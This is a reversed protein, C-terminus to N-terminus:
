HCLEKVRETKMVGGSEERGQDDCAKLAKWMLDLDMAVEGQMLYNEKTSQVKEFIEVAKQRDNEAKLARMFLFRQKSSQTKASIEIMQLEKKDLLSAAEDAKGQSLLLGALETKAEMQLLGVKSEAIIRRCLNEAEALEGKQLLVNIYLLALNAEISNSLDADSIHAFYDAPLDIPLTGGQVLANARLITMLASKAKLDGKLHLANYGDNPFGGVTVPVGNTLLILVGICATICLSLSVYSNDTGWRAIVICIASLLLNFLLGGLNYLTTPVKEAPMDPPSLLCQGGTGSISFKKVKFRNEEKLLTYNLVRFSVFKYGSNLGCVLHGTEHIILQLFGGIFVGLFASIVLFVIDKWKESDATQVHEVTDGDFLKGFGYGIAFGIGLCLSIILISKLIRKM